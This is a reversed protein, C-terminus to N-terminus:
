GGAIPQLVSVVDGDELARDLDGYVRNVLIMKPVNDPIHLKQMVTRVTSHEEVPLEFDGTSSDPNPLYQRMGAFLRVMVVM